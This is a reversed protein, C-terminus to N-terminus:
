LFTTSGRKVASTPDTQKDYRAGVAVAVATGVSKLLQAEGEAKLEAQEHMVYVNVADDDLEVGVEDLTIVVDEAVPITVNVEDLGCTVGVVVLELEREYVVDVTYVVEVYVMLLQAGVTVFQGYPWTVVSM